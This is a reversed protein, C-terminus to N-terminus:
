QMNSTMGVSWCEEVMNQVDGVLYETAIYERILVKKQRQKWMLKAEHNSNMEQLPNLEM